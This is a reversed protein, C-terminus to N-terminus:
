ETTDRRFYIPYRIKNMRIRWKSLYGKTKYMKFPYVTYEGTMLCLQFIRELERLTDRQVTPIDRLYRMGSLHIHIYVTFTDNHIRMMTMIIKEKVMLCVM